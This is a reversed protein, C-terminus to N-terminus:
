TQHVLSSGMSRSFVLAISENEMRDENHRQFDEFIEKIATVCLVFMLPFITVYRSTPSIFEGDNNKLQQFISVSLFFLNPYRRFQEFLFRPLFTILNYKATTISNSLFQVGDEKQHSFFRINRIGEM